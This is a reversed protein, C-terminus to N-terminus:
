QTVAVDVAAIQLPREVDVEAMRHACCRAHDRVRRVGSMRGMASTRRRGRYSLGACFRSGTAKPPKKKRGQSDPHRKLRIEGSLGSCRPSLSRVAVKPKMLGM